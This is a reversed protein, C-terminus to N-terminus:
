AAHRGNLLELRRRLRILAQKEIQRAREKTLGLRRGVEELTQGAGDPLGFRWQLVQRDREALSDLLRSITRHCDRALLDADPKAATADVISAGLASGDNAPADLDVVPQAAKLAFAVKEAPIQMRAAVADLSPERGLERTLAARAQSIRNLEEVLHVPLRVTRGTDAIGRHIAQRIWWVAYTSFKFGRRYEFRDAATMLGLNGDQIRDLLPVATGRYRHAISVVLSLNAEVLRAKLARVRQLRRHVRCASPGGSRLSAEGAVREITGPRLPVGALLSVLERRRRHRVRNAVHAASSPSADTLDALRDGLLLARDITRLASECNGSSLESGDVSQLLEGADCAGSRIGDVLAQIQRAGPPWGFVAAALACRAREIRKCLLVEQDRTIVPIRRVHRFYAELADREADAERGHWPRAATGGTDLM